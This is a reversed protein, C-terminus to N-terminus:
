EELVQLARLEESWYNYTNFEPFIRPFSADSWRAAIWSAYRVVRFARLLKLTRLEVQPAVRLSQYGEMLEDLEEANGESSLLMWFDQEVPGPGFDDFDVFAFVGASDQILNGRHCDGHIRQLSEIPPLAEALEDFLDEARRVYEPWIEPPVWNQLTDLFADGIVDPHYPPRHRSPRKAGVNHLRALSTGVAKLDGPLFEQPMRGRVRPFVAFYFEENKLLTEGEFLPLPAATALGEQGLEAIFEHEERLAAETWRGPRYVKVIIRDEGWASLPTKELRVDFVRNEYSNLQSYEGTPFLRASELVGMLHEPTLHTFSTSNPNPNM